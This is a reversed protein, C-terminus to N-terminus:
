CPMTVVYAWINDGCKAMHVVNDWKRTKGLLFSYANDKSDFVEDYVNVKLIRYAYGDYYGTPAFQKYIKIAEEKSSATLINEYIDAGM